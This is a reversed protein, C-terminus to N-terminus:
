SYFKETKQPQFSFHPFHRNPSRSLRTLLSLPLETIVGYPKKRALESLMTITEGELTEMAKGRWTEPLVIMDTGKAGEQDIIDAIKNLDENEFCLSVVRVPRGVKEAAIMRVPVMLLFGAMIFLLTLLKKTDM